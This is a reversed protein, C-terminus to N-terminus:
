INEVHVKYFDDDANYVFLLTEWLGLDDLICDNKLPHFGNKGCKCIRIDKDM